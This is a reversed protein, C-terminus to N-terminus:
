IPLLRLRTHSCSTSSAVVTSAHHLVLLHASGIGCTVSLLGACCRGVAGICLCVRMRMCARACPRCVCVLVCTRSCEIVQIGAWQGPRPPHLREACYMALSALTTAMKSPFALRRVPPFASSSLREQRITSAIYLFPRRHSLARGRAARCTTTRAVTAPASTSPIRGLGAVSSGRPIRQVSCVALICICRRIYRPRHASTRVPPEADVERVGQSRSPSNPLPCMGGNDATPM